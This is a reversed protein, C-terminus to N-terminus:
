LRHSFSIATTSRAATADPKTRRAIEPPTAASTGIELQNRITADKPDSNM